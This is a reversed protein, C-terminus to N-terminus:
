NAPKQEGATKTLKDAKKLVYTTEPQPKLFFSVTVFLACLALSIVVVKRYTQRDATHFSHSMPDARGRRIPTATVRLPLPTVAKGSM